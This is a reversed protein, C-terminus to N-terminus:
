IGREDNGCSVRRFVEVISKTSQNADSISDAFSRGAAAISESRARDNIAENLRAALEHEGGDYLLGRDHSLLESTGTNNAGIVLCGALMGEVAARGYSESQSSVILIDHAILRDPVDDVVGAFVAKARLNSREFVRRIASAYTGDLERGYFTVHVRARLDEPLLSLAIAVNLQGKGPTIAGVVCVSVLATSLIPAPRDRSPPSVADYVVSVRSASVHGSFASAVADSVAIVADARAIVAKQADPDSFTRGSEPSNFERIHWVLPTGRRKACQLGMSTASSNIHIVDPSVVSALFRLRRQALRNAVAKVWRVPRRRWVPQEHWEVWQFFRICHYDISLDRLAPALSGEYPLVVIPEVGWRRERDVLEILCREAGGDLDGSSAVHLVRM